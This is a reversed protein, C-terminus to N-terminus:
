KKKNEERGCVRIIASEFVSAGTSFNMLRGANEWVSTSRISVNPFRLSANPRCHLSNERLILTMSSLSFSSLVCRRISSSEM